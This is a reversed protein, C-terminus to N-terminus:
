SQVFATLEDINNFIVPLKQIKASLSANHLASNILDQPSQSCWSDTDNATEVHQFKTKSTRNHITFCFDDYFYNGMFNDVFNLWNCQFHYPNTIATHFDYETLEYFFTHLERSIDLVAQVQIANEPNAASDVTNMMPYTMLKVWLAANSDKQCTTLLTFYQKFLQNQTQNHAQTLWDM